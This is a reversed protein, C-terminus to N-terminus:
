IYIYIYIAGKFLEFKMDNTCMRTSDKKDELYELLIDETM